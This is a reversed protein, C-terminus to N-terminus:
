RRSRTNMSKRTGETSWSGPRGSHTSVAFPARRSSRASRGSPRPRHARAFERNAIAMCCFYQSWPRDILSNVVMRGIKRARLEQPHPPFGLLADIKGEALLNAAEEFPNTVWRVDNRPDLGVYAVMSALFVHEPGGLQSVAVTKGRLDRIARIRESGFLEFCGVHIGALIVIRDGADVRTILPGTFNLAIDIEGAAVAKPQSAGPMTVYQVDTFGEAPLFQEAVYQPAICMAQTKALRIRTTEPPPEALAHGPRWGRLGLEVTGALATKRLFTRRNMSGEADFQGSYPVNLPNATSPARKEATAGM